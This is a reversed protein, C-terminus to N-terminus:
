KYPLTGTHVYIHQLLQRKRHFGLKCDECSFPYQRKPNHKLKIHKKLSYKNALELECGEHPCM